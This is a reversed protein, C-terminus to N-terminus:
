IEERVGQIWGPAECLGLIKRRYSPPRDQHLKTRDDTYLRQSTRRLTISTHVSRRQHSRSATGTRICHRASSARAVFHSTTLPLKSLVTSVSRGFALAANLSMGKLTLNMHPKFEGVYRGPVYVPFGQWNILDLGLRSIYSNGVYNHHSLFLRITNLPLQPLSSMRKVNDRQYEFSSHLDYDDIHREENTQSPMFLHLDAEIYFTETIKRLAEICAMMECLDMSGPNYDPHLTVLLESRNVHVICAKLKNAKSILLPAFPPEWPDNRDHIQLDVSPVVVLYRQGPTLRSM